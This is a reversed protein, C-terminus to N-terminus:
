HTVGERWIIRRRQWPKLAEPGCRRRGEMWVQEPVDRSGLLSPLYPTGELHDTHKSVRGRQLSEFVWLHIIEQSPDYFCKGPVPDWWSGQLWKLAPQWRCLHCLPLSLTGYATQRPEKTRLSLGSLHTVPFILLSWFHTVLRLLKAQQPFYSNKKKEGQISTM